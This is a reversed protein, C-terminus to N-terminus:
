ILAFAISRLLFMPVVVPQQQFTYLFNGINFFKSVKVYDKWLRDDDLVKQQKNDWSFGKQSLIIKISCYHRRM